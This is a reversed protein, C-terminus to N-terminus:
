ECPGSNTDPVKACPNPMSPLDRPVPLMQVTSTQPYTGGCPQPVTGTACLLQAGAVTVDGGANSQGCTGLATQIAAPDSTLRGERDRNAVFCNGPEGPLPALTVDALDGNSPNGFFGNDSLHNHEIRNGFALFYCLGPSQIGGECHAVPPPTETDPYDNIVIGWGGQNWVTNDRV